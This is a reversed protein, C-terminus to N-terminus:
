APAATTRRSRRTPSCRRGCNAVLAAEDLGALEHIVTIRNLALCKRMAEVVGWLCGTAEHM